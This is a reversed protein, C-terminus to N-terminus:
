GAGLPRVGVPDRGLDLLRDEVMGEDMGTVARDADLLFEPELADLDGGAAHAPHPLPVAEQGLVFAQQPQLLGGGFAFDLEGLFLGSQEFAERGLEPLPM